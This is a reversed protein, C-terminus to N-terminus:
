WFVQVARPPQAWWPITGQRNYQIADTAVVHERHNAFTWWSQSGPDNYPTDVLNQSTQIGVDGPPATPYPPLFSNMDSHAQGHYQPWVTAPQADYNMPDIFYPMSTWQTLPGMVQMVYRHAMAHDFSWANRWAENNQDPFVLLAPWGM